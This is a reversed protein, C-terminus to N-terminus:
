EYDWSKSPQNLQKTRSKKDPGEIIRNLIMLSPMSRSLQNMAEIGNYAHLIAMEPFESKIFDNPLSILM